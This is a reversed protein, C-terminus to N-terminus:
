HQPLPIIRITRETNGIGLREVASAQVKLDLSYPNEFKVPFKVKIDSHARIEPLEISQEKDVGLVDPPQIRIIVDDADRKGRNRILLELEQKSDSKTVLKGSIFQLDPRTRTADMRLEFPKSLSSFGFGDIAELQLTLTQSESAFPLDLPSRLSLTDGQKLLPAIEFKGFVRGTPVERVVGQVRYADGGDRGNKLRAELWIQDGGEPIEQRPDTEVEVNGLWEMAHEQRLDRPGYRLFRDILTEKAFQSDFKLNSPVTIREDKINVSLVFDDHFPFAQRLIDFDVSEGPEVRSEQLIRDRTDRFILSVPLNVRESRPTPPLEVTKSNRTETYTYPIKFMSTRVGNATKYITAGPQHGQVWEERYTHVTADDWQFEKRGELWSRRIVASFQFKEQAGKSESRVEARELTFKESDPV